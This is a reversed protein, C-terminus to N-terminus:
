GRVTCLQYAFIETHGIQNSILKWKRVYLEGDSAINYVYIPWAALM